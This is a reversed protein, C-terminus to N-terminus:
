YNKESAAISEHQPYTKSCKLHNCGRKECFKNATAKLLVLGRSKNHEIKIYCLFKTESERWGGTVSLCLCQKNSHRSEKKRVYVPCPWHLGSQGTVPSGRNCAQNVKTQILSLSPAKINLCTLVLSVDDMGM